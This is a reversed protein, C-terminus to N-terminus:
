RELFLARRLDGTTVHGRPVGNADVIFAVFKNEQDLKDLVSSCNEDPGVAVHIDILKSLNPRDASLKKIEKVVEGIKVDMIEKYLDEVMRQKGNKLKDSIYNQIAEEHIVNLLRSNSDVIGVYWMKPDNSLREQIAEITLDETVTPELLMMLESVKKRELIERPTQGKIAQIAQRLNERGFFYAAGAGIWAAFATIVATFM